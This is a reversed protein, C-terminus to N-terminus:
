HGLQLLPALHWVTMGWHERGRSLQPISILCIAPVNANFLRSISRHFLLAIHNPTSRHFLLAIHNRTVETFYCLSTIKSYSRQFLLAVHNELEEERRTYNLFLVVEYWLIAFNLVLYWSIQHCIISQFKKLFINEIIQFLFVFLATSILFIKILFSVLWCFVLQTM